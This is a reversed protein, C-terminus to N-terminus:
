YDRMTTDNWIIRSRRLFGNTGVARKSNVLDEELASIVLQGTHLSKKLREQIDDADDLRHANQVAWKEIWSWALQVTSCEESLSLISL